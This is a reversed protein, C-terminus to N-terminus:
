APPDVPWGAGALAELLEARRRAWFIVGDFIGPDAAFMIGRTWLSGHCPVVADVEGRLIWVPSRRFGPERFSLEAADRDFTLRAFPVSWQSREVRAGGTFTQADSFAHDLVRTPPTRLVFRPNGWM